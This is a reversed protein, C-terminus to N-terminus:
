LLKFPELSDTTVSLLMPRTQQHSVLIVFSPTTTVPKVRSWGLAEVRVPTSTDVRGCKVSVSMSDYWIAHM